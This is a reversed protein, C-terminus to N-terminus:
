AAALLRAAAARAEDTVTAGSLMRAIEELRGVSDLPVIDTTVTQGRTLKEVRWQRDARAAVQPSHTVVLVQVDQGLRKLREGVADATAGGIGSDVEDFVLVPVSSVGALVVKLALMFRSLEGGSAIKGLPGPEAGPNTAVLFSVRERGAASWDAEGLPELRTELRAKDLKLPPLEAAIAKDFRRAAKEREATLLTATKEYAAKAEAEDRALKALTAGGDDVVALRTRFDDRLAALGGLEVGFRRAASRLAFLRDDVKELTTEELGDGDMMAAILSGAEDIELAARELAEMAEALRPGGHATIRDLMRRAGNLATEAGRPGSLETTAGNLAEMIRDRNALRQRKEELETEEGPRPDLEDFQTLAERLFSEEERARKQTEAAVELAARAAQLARWAVETPGANLRGFADLTARHTDRDLLAGTEFQGHTEVLADAIAKMLALSCPQDNVFAKSRGDATVTRRLILTDEAAIGQEALLANVAHGAAPEFTASVSSQAAGRRVLGTDSRNGLALGLADLLISKGAGTEGTLANLGPSLVLDLREILVVDRISLGTLM